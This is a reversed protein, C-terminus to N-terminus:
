YSTQEQCRRKEQYWRQGQGRQYGSWTLDGSTGRTSMSGSAELGRSGSPNGPLAQCPLSSTGEGVWFSASISPLPCSEQFPLFISQGAEPPRHQHFHSSVAFTVTSKSFRKQILMSGTYHFILRKLSNTHIGTTNQGWLNMWTFLLM